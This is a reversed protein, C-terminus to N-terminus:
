FIGDALALSETCEARQEWMFLAPGKHRKAMPGSAAAPDASRKQSSSSLAGVDVVADMRIWGHASTWKLSLGTDLEMVQAAPAAAEEIPSGAAPLAAAPAAAAAPVSSLAVVGAASEAASEAAAADAVAEAVEVAGAPEPEVAEAPKDGEAVAAGALHIFGQKEHAAAVQADPASVSAPEGAAAAFAEVRANDVIAAAANRTVVGAAVKSQVVTKTKVKKKAQSKEQRQNLLKMDRKSVLPETGLVIEQWVHKMLSPDIKQPITRNCGKSAAPSSTSSSRGTGGAGAAAGGGTVSSGSAKADLRQNLIKLRWRAKSLLWAQASIGGVSPLDRLSTRTPADHPSVRIEENRIGVSYLISYLLQQMIQCQKLTGFGKRSVTFAAYFSRGDELEFSSIKPVKFDHLKALQARTMMNRM